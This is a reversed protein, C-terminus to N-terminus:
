KKTAKKKIPQEKQQEKKHFLYNTADIPNTVPIIINEFLTGALAQYFLARTHSIAMGVIPILISNPIFTGSEGKLRHIDPIHFINQVKIDAIIGEPVPTGTYHLFVFLTFDFINNELSIETTQSMGLTVKPNQENIYLRENITLHIQKVRKIEFSFIENENSSM